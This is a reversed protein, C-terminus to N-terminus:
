DGPQIAWGASRACDALAAQWAALPVARAYVGMAAGDVAPLLVVLVGPWECVKAVDGGRAPAAQALLDVNPAADSALVAVAQGQQTWSAASDFLGTAVEPDSTVEIALASPRRGLLGTNPADGLFALRGLRLAAAVIATRLTHPPGGDPDLPAWDVGSVLFGEPPAPLGWTPPLPANHMSLTASM